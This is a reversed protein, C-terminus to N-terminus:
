QQLIMESSFSKSKSDAQSRSEEQSEESRSNEQSKSNKDQEQQFFNMITMNSLEISM